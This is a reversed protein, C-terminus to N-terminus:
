EKAKQTASPAPFVRVGILPAWAPGLKTTQSAELAFILEPGPRSHSLPFGADLRASARYVTGSLGLTWRPRVDSLVATKYYKPDMPSQYRMAALTSSLGLRLRKRSILGPVSITPGGGGVWLDGAILLPATTPKTCRDTQQLEHYCVPHTAGLLSAGLDVPGLSVLASVQVRRGKEITASAADGVFHENGVTLAGGLQSAVTAALAYPSLM